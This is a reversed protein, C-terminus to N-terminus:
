SNLMQLLGDLQEGTIRGFTVIAQLPMEFMMNQVMKESGEGMNKRNDAAADEAEKAGGMKQMMNQMFARGKASKLLDGVTSEKTYHIPREVTGQVSIPSELRIDRSSAGIEIAYIGSEVYWDHIAADYFAFARKELTFSIERSEGPKLTVKEFGKLERIPRIFACAANRVYLQVVESGLRKGVNTVTCRVTLTDTDKMETKDLKLGSYAFDTYSLGYGFPFLVPMEKKDYYRYGVFIGEAYRVIGEEGPFNLYSPNDSLKVPWTEALKGSPNTKGFLLNVAAKGVCQGGLHMLLVDPVLDLWTLEMCSGGHLVVVTNPQVATVAQILKNQNEPLKLTDRDAGESEFSDPLGAFIVAKKAEGAKQVAEAILAETQEDEHVRYGEAYVVSLGEAQAAELASISHPVNIHSSGSGQYRPKAAFEGIFVVDDGTDLPLVGDSKLLVACKEALSESLKEFKSRDAVADTRHEKRYTDVLTLVRRVAGDLVAEDLIGNQVAEVIRSDQNGPGGPMELDLGALLGKVRDKVAGWDTVVMGDYGWRERLIGTLLEKNEASFVGNIANYSCMVGRTGGKKVVAEFAPLYIEHFTREDVQSSGSMRRTEQNNAAFHKVCAAVGQAQLSQVYAAALEGALYPDESFYEFNRGCLPSRKINVGPGLLMGVDEAQCEQGLATGLEGLCDRDFSSALASASPYCVTEISENIGLHDGEGRQKRLGHPGDCMMMSPIGLREVGKTHWYDLGSCLGAKEELTMESIMKEIDM